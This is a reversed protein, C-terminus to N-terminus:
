GQLGVQETDLGKKQGRAKDVEERGQVGWEEWSVAWAKAKALKGLSANGKTGLRKCYIGKERM